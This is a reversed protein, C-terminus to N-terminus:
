QMRHKLDLGKNWQVRILVCWHSLELFDCSAFHGECRIHLYNELQTM